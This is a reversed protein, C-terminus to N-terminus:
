EAGIKLGMIKTLEFQRKQPMVVFLRWRWSPQSVGRTHPRTASSRLLLQHQQSTDSLPNLKGSLGWKTYHWPTSCKMYVDMMIVSMCLSLQFFFLKVFRGLATVVPIVRGEEKRSSEFPKQKKDRLTWIQASVPPESLSYCYFFCKQICTM